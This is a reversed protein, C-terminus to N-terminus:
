SAMTDTTSKKVPPAKTKTKQLSQKNSDKSQEPNETTLTLATTEPAAAQPTNDIRVQVEMLAAEAPLRRKPTIQFQLLLIRGDVTIVEIQPLSNTREVRRITETLQLPTIQDM